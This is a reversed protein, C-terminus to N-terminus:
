SHLSLQPLILFLVVVGLIQGTIMLVISLNKWTGNISFRSMVIGAVSLALASLAVIMLIISRVGEM